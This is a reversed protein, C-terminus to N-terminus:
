MMRNRGYPMRMAYLAHWAWTHPRCCMSPTLVAIAHLSASAILLPSLVAVDDLLTCSGADCLQGVM